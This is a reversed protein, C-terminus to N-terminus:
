VNQGGGHLTGGAFMFVSGRPMTVQIALEPREAERRWLHSYPVIHTAGNEPTFDDLAWLLDITWQHPQHNWPFPGDERHLLQEKGGPEIQFAQLLKLKIEKSSTGLIEKATALVTPNELLDAVTPAKVLMDLGM